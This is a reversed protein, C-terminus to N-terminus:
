MSLAKLGQRGVKVQNVVAANDLQKTDRAVLTDRTSTARIATTDALWPFASETTGFASCSTM